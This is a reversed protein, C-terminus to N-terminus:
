SIRLYINLKRFARYTPRYKEHSKESFQIQQIIKTGCSSLNLGGFNKIEVQRECKEVVESENQKYKYPNMKQNRAEHIMAARREINNSKYIEVYRGSELFKSNHLKTIAELAQKCTKFQIFVKGICRGDSHVPLYVSHFELNQLFKIVTMKTASYPLGRMKIIGDFPYDNTQHKTYSTWIGMKATSSEHIELKKLKPINYPQDNQFPQFICKNLTLVEQFLEKNKTLLFCQGTPVLTKHKDLAKVFEAEDFYPKNYLNKFLFQLLDDITAQFPLNKILLVYNEKFYSNQLKDCKQMPKNKRNNESTNEIELIKHDPFKSSNQPAESM